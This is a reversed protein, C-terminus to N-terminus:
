PDERASACGTPKRQAIFARSFPAVSMWTSGRKERVLATLSM